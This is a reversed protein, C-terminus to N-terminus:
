SCDHGLGLEMIIGDEQTDPYYAARVSAEQFGFRRYLALAATNSRRVELSVWQAGHRHAFHILFAMLRRGLGHGRFDSRITLNLLHTEDAIMWFVVYGLVCRGDHGVFAHGVPSKMESLFSEMPWPREHSDKEITMVDILDKYAM